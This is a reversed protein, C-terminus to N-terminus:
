TQWNSRPDCPNVCGYPDRIYKANETELFESLKMNAYKIYKYTILNNIDVTATDNRLKNCKETDFNEKSFLICCWDGIKNKSKRRKRKEKSPILLLYIMYFVIDKKGDEYYIEIKDAYQKKGNFVVSIRENYISIDDKNTDWNCICDIVNMDDDIEITLMKSLEIQTIEKPM